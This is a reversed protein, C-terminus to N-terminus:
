VKLKVRLLRERHKSYTKLRRSAAATSVGFKRELHSLRLGGPTKDLINLVGAPMLFAGAFADAQWETDRYVPHLKPAARLLARSQDPLRALKVLELHHLYAHGLEHALSFRARGDSALLGRYTKESLAVEIAQKAPLFETRGEISTASDFVGTEFSYGQVQSCHLDEFLTECDVYLSGRVKLEKRALLAEAEIEEYRLGKFAPIGLKRRVM